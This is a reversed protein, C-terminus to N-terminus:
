TEKGDASGPNQEQNPIYRTMCRCRLAELYMKEFHPKLPRKLNEHEAIVHEKDTDSLRATFMLWGFLHPTTQTMRSTLYSEALRRAKQDDTLFAQRTKSAFAISSLEGKSLRQRGELIAIDQLDAIDLSYAVISKSDIEQKLRRQLEVDEQIITRRQKHLCEYIVFATCCFSVAAERAAQYMRRSSLVNWLSCTDAVNLIHFTSPDSAM